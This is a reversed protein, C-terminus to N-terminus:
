KLQGRINYYKPPIQNPAMHIMSLDYKSSESSDVYEVIDLARLAQVIRSVDAQKLNYIYFYGNDQIIPQTGAIRTILDRAEQRAKRDLEESLSLRKSVLEDRFKKLKDLYGANRLEKFALNKESYEGEALGAKRLKDYIQTILTVVKDENDLKDAEIDAILDTCKTEWETVLKELQEKDYDAIEEAVPEKIWKDKKVSYIGNSIKPTAEIEVYLELPIDYISIDLVKNFLSRYASYLASALAEPYKVAKTDAVIHLDIDSKNNYNFSANSGIFIVDKVKIKVEQEKLDEIFTDVIELMKKRVVEKLVGDKTFLKPNLTDHKEVAEKLIIKGSTQADNLRSVIVNMDANSQWVTKAMNKLDTSTYGWIKLTRKLQDILEGWDIIVAIIFYRLLQATPESPASKGKAKASGVSVDYKKKSLNYGIGWPTMNFNKKNWADREAPKKAAANEYSIKATLLKEFEEKTPTLDVESYTIGRSTNVTSM